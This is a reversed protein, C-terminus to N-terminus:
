NERGRRINYNYKQNCKIENKHNMQM